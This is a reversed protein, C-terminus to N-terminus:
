RRRNQLDDLSVILEKDESRENSTNQRGDFANYQFEALKANVRFDDIM